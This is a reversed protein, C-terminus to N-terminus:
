VINWYHLLQALTAQRIAEVKSGIPCIYIFTQHNGAMVNLRENAPVRYQELDPQPIKFLDGLGTALVVSDSQLDPM